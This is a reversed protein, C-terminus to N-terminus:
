DGSPGGLKALWGLPTPQTPLRQTYPKDGLLRLGNVLCLKGQCVGTGWGTFRKAKESASFGKRLSLEFDKVKVDECFCVYADPDVFRNNLAMIPSPQVEIKSISDEDGVLSYGIAKGHAYAQNLEYLGTVSGALVVNGNLPPPGGVPNEYVFKGHTGRMTYTYGAQVPLEMNPQRLTSYVVYSAGVTRGNNLKVKLGRSTGKVRTIHDAEKGQVDSPTVLITDVKDKLAHYVELGWADEIYFVTPGDLCDYHNLKLAYDISVVGPTDNGAFLPPSCKSGNAYVLKEFEVQVLQDKGLLVGVKEEYVGTFVGLFRTKLVDEMNGTLGADFRGRLKPVGLAYRVRGGLQDHPDVLLFDVGKGALIQAVGIGAPGGGVILVQTSRRKINPNGWSSSDHRMLNASSLIAKKAVRWGVGSRLPLSNQFGAGFFPVAGSLLSGLSPKLDLSVTIDGNVTYNLPNVNGRGEVRVSSYQPYPYSDDMIGRLRGNKVSRYIGKFGAKRIAIDLPVGVEVDVTRNNVRVRPM